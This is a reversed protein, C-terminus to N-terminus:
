EKFKYGVGRITEICEGAEGLKKRLGFIQVDVSRETVAYDEGRVAEVIQYRNFVWGPRRMLLMLVQFETFTLDLIEGQYQVEHRGTNLTLGHAKMVTSDDPSEQAKRRLMARTRAVVIKPSFPKTIYDDAGVELGTIVDSEESKATLMVVPIDRTGQDQKLMCCVALGDIGPLMLDLLIVDPHIARAASLGEEGSTVCSVQYGEKTLNYTLLEIIDDEDEIVLIKERAM